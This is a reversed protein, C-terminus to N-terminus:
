QREIPTQCGWRSPNVREPTGVPGLQCSLSVPCAILLQCSMCHSASLVLQCSMCHPASLVLSLPCACCLPQSPNLPCARPASLVHVPQSSMCLTTPRASLVHVAAAYASLVHAADDPQSSMCLTTLASGDPVLDSYFPLSLVFSSVPCAIRPSLSSVPCAIRPSLSPYFSPIFLRAVHTYISTASARDPNSL